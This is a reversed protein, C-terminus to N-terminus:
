VFTPSMLGNRLGDIFSPNNFTVLIDSTFSSIRFLGIHMNVTNKAAENFKSINQQGLIYYASDCQTMKLDTDSIKEIQVIAADGSQVDNDSALDNFHTKIAEEDDSGVYELIEIIISQDTIPHAFVEQNDPIQRIDSIDKANEPLQFSLAGGFLEHVKLSM